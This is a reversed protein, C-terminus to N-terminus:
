EIFPLESSNSPPIPCAQLDSDPLADPVMPLESSLGSDVQAHSWGSDINLLQGLQPLGEFAAYDILIRKLKDKVENRVPSTATKLKLQPVHQCLLSHLEKDSEESFLDNPTVRISVKKLYKVKKSSSKLPQIWSYIHSKSSIEETVGSSPRLRSGVHPFPGDITMDIHCFRPKAKSDLCVLSISVLGGTIPHDHLIHRICVKM